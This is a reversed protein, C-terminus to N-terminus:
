KKVGGLRKNIDLYRKLHNSLVALSVAMNENHILINKPGKLSAIAFNWIASIKNEIMLNCVSQANQAPVTIIGMKVGLKKVFKPFESLPFITKGEPTKGIAKPDIDFAAIIRLGYQEFGKYNLLAKGLKGAGV